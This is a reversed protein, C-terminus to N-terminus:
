QETVTQGNLSIGLEVMLQEGGTATFTAYTSDGITVDTGREAFDTANVTDGEDGSIILQHGDAGLVDALSITIDDNEGNNLNIQDAEKTDFWVDHVDVTTGDTLTATSQHSVWQGNEYTDVFEANLDIEAVDWEALSALEGEETVADGDDNWILLEDFAEDDANIVGDNNSDLLALDAFGDDQGRNSGFLESLNNIVGDGNRDMALIQEDPAFWATQELEGDNDMDFMATATVGDNVQVGDGDLDLALPTIYYNFTVRATDQCGHEDEITYEVVASRWAHDYPSWGGNNSPHNVTVQLENNVVRVSRTFGNFTTPSILRADVITLPDGSPSTDNGLVNLTRWTGLLPQPDPGQPADFLLNFSDDNAVPPAVVNITVTATDTSFGDTMTYTFTDTGIYGSNPTYTYSGDANVVVTGNSPNTNSTVTLPDGDPDTDNTLVNGSLTAQNCVIGTDDVAEPPQNTTITVIATDECGHEDTITYEFTDAGFFGVNPTYTFTGDSNVVLTGNSPNTNSTLTFTDGDIDSDNTLLNGSVAVGPDTAFTDNEAYPVNDVTINVNATATGGEDDAITYAFTETGSFAADAVFTMNGSADIQVEGNPTAITQAAGTLAVGNIHTVEIPDGGPDSDNQLLVSGNTGLAVMGNAGQNVCNIELADDEAEPGVNEITITVTAEDVCNGGDDTVEYTFTDTGVFGANPTYTFTGDTNMVLTGNSPDTNTAVTLTDGDIDIDNSVVNGSVPTLQDTTFADDVGEPANDVNVTVTTTTRNGETDAITYTFTEAGSFALNSVFLMNGSADIQVEGNPTAITQAGGTLAVGNIATISIPGGDPDFDNALLVSGDQGLAVQGQEGSKVCNIELVDPVANPDPLDPLEPPLDPNPNDFQPDGFGFPPVPTVSEPAEFLSDAAFPQAFGGGTGGVAGPGAAPEIAALDDVVEEPGAAPEVDTLAHLCDLMAEGGMEEGNPLLILPPNDSKALEDFDWVGAAPEVDDFDFVLMCGAGKDGKHSGTNVLRQGVIDTNQLDLVGGEPIVYVEITEGKQEPDQVQFHQLNPNQQNVTEITM